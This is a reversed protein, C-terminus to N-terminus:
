AWRAAWGRETWGSGITSWTGPVAILEGGGDDRLIGDDHRRGSQATARNPVSAAQAALGDVADSARDVGVFAGVVDAAGAVATVETAGVETAGAVDAAGVLEVTAVATVVGVVTARGVPGTSAKAVTPPARM